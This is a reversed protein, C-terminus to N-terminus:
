EDDEDEDDDFGGIMHEDGDEELLEEEGDDEEVIEVDDPVVFGDALGPEAYQNNKVSAYRGSYTGDYEMYQTKREAIGDEEDDEEDRTEQMKQGLDKWMEEITQSSRADGSGPTVMLNTNSHEVRRQRRDLPDEDEEESAFPDDDDDEDADSSEDDLEPHVYQARANRTLRHRPNESRNDTSAITM